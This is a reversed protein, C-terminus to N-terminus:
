TQFFDLDESEDAFLRRRAVGTRLWRTAIKILASLMKSM